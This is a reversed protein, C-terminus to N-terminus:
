DEADYDYYDSTVFFEIRRNKKRLMSNKNDTVPETEGKSECTIRRSEIGNSIFFDRCVQARELGIKYNVKVTGIGCTHGVIRVNTEPYDKLLDAVEELVNKQETTLEVSDFSYDCIKTTQIRAIARNKSAEREVKRREKSDKVLQEAAELREINQSEDEIDAPQNRSQLNELIDSLGLEAQQESSLNRASFLQGALDEAYEQNDCIGLTMLSKSTGRIYRQREERRENADSIIEGIYQFHASIRENNAIIREEETKKSANMYKAETALYNAWTDEGFFHLIAEGVVLPKSHKNSHVWKNGLEANRVDAGITQCMGYTANYGEEESHNSSKAVADQLFASGAFAAANLTFDGVASWFEPSCSLLM